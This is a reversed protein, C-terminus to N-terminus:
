NSNIHFFINEYSPLCIIYCRIWYTFSGPKVCAYKRTEFGIKQSHKFNNDKKKTFSSEDNSQSPLVCTHLWIWKCIPNSPIDNTVSLFYNKWQYIAYKLAIHSLSVVCWTTNQSCAPVHRVTLTPQLVDCKVCQVQYCPGCPFRVSKIVITGNHSIKCKCTLKLMDM